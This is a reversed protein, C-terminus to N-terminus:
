TEQADIANRLCTPCLCSTAPDIRKRALRPMENCWCTKLDIGCEFTINCRSCQQQAGKIELKSVRDSAM